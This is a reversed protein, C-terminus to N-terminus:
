SLALLIHTYMNTDLHRDIMTQIDIPVHRDADKVTQARHSDILTHTHRHSGTHTDIFTQTYLDILTQTNTQSDSVSGFLSYNILQVFADGGRGM